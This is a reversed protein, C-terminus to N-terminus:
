FLVSQLVLLRGKVNLLLLLLLLVVLVCLLEIIHVIGCGLYALFVREVCGFARVCFM